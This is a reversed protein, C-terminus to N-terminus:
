KPRSSVCPKVNGEVVNVSEDANVAPNVFKEILNETSNVIKESSSTEEVASSPRQIDTDRVELPYLRQIPRRLVMLKGDKSQTKVLPTALSHGPTALAVGIGGLSFNFHKYNNIYMIDIM